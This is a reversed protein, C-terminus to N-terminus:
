PRSLALCGMAPHPVSLFLPSPPTLRGGHTTGCTQWVALCHSRPDGPKMGSPDMSRTPPVPRPGCTCGRAATTARRRWTRTQSRPIPVWVGLGRGGGAGVSAGLSGVEPGLAPNRERGEQQCKRGDRQVSGQGQVGNRRDDRSTGEGKGKGDGDRSIRQGGSAGWGRGDVMSWVLWRDWPRVPPPSATPPTPRRCGSTSSSPSRRRGCAGARRGRLAGLPPPCRSENPLPPCSRHRVICPL